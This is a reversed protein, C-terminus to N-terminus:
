KGYYKGNRPHVSLDIAAENPIQLHPIAQNFVDLLHQHSFEQQQLKQM